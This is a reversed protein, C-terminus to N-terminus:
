LGELAQPACSSQLTALGLHGTDAIQIAAAMTEYDRLGGGLIVDPDQRLIDRLALAFNPTHQGVERQSVFSQKSTYVFEIPDEITIVKDHRTQNICELLCALTTSKGSGTPGTVLILGRDM